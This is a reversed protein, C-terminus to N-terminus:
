RIPQTKADKPLTLVFRDPEVGADITLNRYRVSGSVYGGGASVDFGTLAGAEDRRYTVVAAARGGTIQLQRVIGTAFDMWVRQENMAGVLTISPGMEDPPMMEAVRLDKPPVARGALVAVLDDPDFPLSLLRATTAADAAGVLAENTAANYVTLRGDNVTAFLFPQGFPSLAEFRVSGPARALLVGALRQKQGGKELNVDALARLDSFEHWRTILLDVARRAEEPIAARPPPIAV